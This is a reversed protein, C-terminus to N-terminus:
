TFSRHIQGILEETTKDGAMQKQSMMLRYGSMLLQKNSHRFRAGAPLRAM